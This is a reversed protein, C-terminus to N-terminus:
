EQKFNYYDHIDSYFLIINEFHICYFLLEFSKNKNLWKAKQIRQNM